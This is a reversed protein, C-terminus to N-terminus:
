EDRLIYKGNESPVIFSCEPISYWKGDIEVFNDSHEELYALPYPETEHRDIYVDVVKTDVSIFDEIGECYICCDECYWADEYQSYSLTEPEDDIHVDESRGCRACSYENYNNIYAGETESLTIDGREPNTHISNSEKDYYRFTDLYPMYPYVVNLNISLDVQFAEKYNDEPGLWWQYEGDSLLAQNKRHIWKNQEAYDIFNAELYDMCVYVRDMYTKGDIEWLIARGLVKEDKLLVLMKANDEYICFFPQCEAYRMCSNGLTGGVKYYNKDLYYKSIDTGEVVKFEGSCMIEAKLWNSFNEFDRCSYKNVLLKQIIRAPKASQRNQRSWISRDAYVPEKGEPLYSIEFTNYRFSLMRAENNVRQAISQKIIKIATDLQGEYIFNWKKDQDLRICSYILSDAELLDEAIKCNHKKKVGELIERLGDSLLVLTNIEM